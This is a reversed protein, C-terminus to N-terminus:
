HGRRGRRGRRRRQRGVRRVRRVKLVLPSADVCEDIRECRLQRLQGIRAFGPEDAFITKGCQICGRQDGLTGHVLDVPPGAGAEAYHIERGDITLSPM